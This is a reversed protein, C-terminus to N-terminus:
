HRLDAMTKKSEKGGRDVGFAERTAEEGHKEYFKIIKHRQQKTKQFDGLVPL